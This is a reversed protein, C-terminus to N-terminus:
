ARRHTRDRSRGRGRFCLRFLFLGAISWCRRRPFPRTFSASYVLRDHRAYRVPIRCHCSSRQLCDGQGSRGGSIGHWRCIGAFGEATGYTRCRGRCNQRASKRGGSHRGARGDLDRALFLQRSGGADPGHRRRVPSYGQSRGGASRCGHGGPCQGLGARM